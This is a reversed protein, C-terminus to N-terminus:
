QSITNFYTKLSVDSRGESLQRSFTPRTMMGDMDMRRSVSSLPDRQRFFRRRALEFDYDTMPMGFDQLVIYSSYIYLIQKLNTFFARKM